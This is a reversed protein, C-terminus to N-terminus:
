ERGKEGRVKLAGFNIGGHKSLWAHAERVTDATDVPLSSLCAEVTLVVGRNKDWMQLIHNRNRPTHTM